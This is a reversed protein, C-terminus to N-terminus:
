GRNLWKPGSLYGSGAVVYRYKWTAAEGETVGIRTTEVVREVEFGDEGIWLGSEREFYKKGNHKPRTVGLAECMRGPGATLQALSKESGDVEVDRARTMAAIGALPELARFLVANSVGERECSVNMCFYRGYILYVYAHGPPGFMVANRETMGRYAHSAPDSAGMYAEVEVLRGARLNRGSGCVLVKGLLDRAVRMADRLYFEQSLVRVREMEFEADQKRGRM